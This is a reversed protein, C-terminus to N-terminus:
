TVLMAWAMCHLRNAVLGLNLFVYKCIIDFFIYMGVRLMYIYRFPELHFSSGSLCSSDLHLLIQTHIQKVKIEIWLKIFGEDLAGDVLNRTIRRCRMKWNLFDTRWNTSRSRAFSPFVIPLCTGLTKLAITPDTSKHRLFRHHEFLARWKM